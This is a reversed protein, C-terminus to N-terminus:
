PLGNGPPPTVSYEKLEYVTTYDTILEEHYFEKYESRHRVLGADRGYYDRAEYSYPGGDDRGDLVVCDTFAGAPVTTAARGSCRMAPVVVSADWYLLM